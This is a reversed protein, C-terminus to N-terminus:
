YRIGMVLIDDTQDMGEGLWQTHTHDLKIKQIEPELMSLTILLDKFPQYYFKKRQPGGIQDAFGDTFLYIMDGKSLVVSRHSFLNDDATEGSGIGKKDAKLEILQCNRVIYVSNHAGAYQLQGKNSDISILSIDMGHKGKLKIDDGSFKTIVEKNLDNLIISPVTVNKQKIINELMNYGLLSMFAGPVGHGTCDAVACVLKGNVIDLWYFDGSVIAKPKYLLFSEPFLQKVKDMTPLIADQITKAYDISDTILINKKQIERKQKELIVNSMQKFRYRRYISFISISLLILGSILGWRVLQQQKIIKENLENDKTLLLIEKEKKETEYRTNLEAVQKFNEKNLLSDKIENLLVTFVLAKEFNKQRTYIDSFGIYAEKIGNKYNLKKATQLMITYYHIAEQLNNKETYLKGINGCIDAIGTKNEVKQFIDFARLFYSLSTDLNKEKLYITGIYNYSEAIGSKDNAEKLIKLAKLYYAKAIQFQLKHTYIKGLNQYLEGSGRKDNIEESIKVGKLYYNLAEEEKGMEALINGINNYSANLGVKFHIEERIKLAKLQYKLAETNNGQVQFVNALNNYGNSTGKKDHIETKMKIGSNMYKVAEKYNGMQSYSLGINLYCNSEGRKDGLEKMLALCKRDFFLAMNFNEISRYFIGINLYAGAMGKKFNLKKSLSLGKWGYEGTKNLDNLDNLYVRSIEYLTNVKSTDDPMTTIIKLLSDLKPTQAFATDTILVALIFLFLYGVKCKNEKMFRYVFTGLFLNLWDLFIQM